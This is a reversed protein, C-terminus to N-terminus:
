FMLRDYGVYHALEGADADNCYSWPGELTFKYRMLQRFIRVSVAPVLLTAWTAGHSAELTILAFALLQLAYARSAYAMPGIHGDSSLYVYGVCEDNLFFVYGSARTALFAHVEPRATGLAERDLADLAHEHLRLNLPATAFRYEGAALWAISEADPLAGSIRYIPTRMPLGIRGCFAATALNGGPVVARRDRDLDDDMLARYLSRGVGDRRYSPEVYFESIFRTSEDDRAFAIGIATGDDKAVIAGNSALAREVYLRAHAADKTRRSAFAHLDAETAPAVTRM